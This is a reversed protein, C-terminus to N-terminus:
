QLTTEVVSTLRDLNRGFSHVFSTSWLRFGILSTMTPTDFPGLVVTQQGQGVFAPSLQTLVYPGNTVVGLGTAPFVHTPPNLSLGVVAISPGSGFNPVNFECFHDYPVNWDWFGPMSPNPTATVTRPTELQWLLNMFVGMGGWQYAVLVDLDLDLDVDVLQIATASGDLCSGPVRADVLPDNPDFCSLLPNSGIRTTSLDAFNAGAAPRGFVRTGCTSNFTVWSGSIIISYAERWTAGVLDVLGDEDVDGVAVDTFSVSTSLAPQALTFTGTGNNAFVHVGGDFWNPTPTVLSRTQTGVVLDVDADGDVDAPTLCLPFGAPGPFAIMSPVFKGNGLGLAIGYVGAGFMGGGLALDVNGDGDFDAAALETPTIGLASPTTVLFSRGSGGAGPDNHYFNVGNAFGTVFDLDGDNDFDAVEVLGGSGPAAFAYSWGGAAPNHADLYRVTTNCAGGSPISRWIGVLPSGFITQQGVAVIEPLGDGDFDALESDGWLGVFPNVACGNDATLVGYAPAAGLVMGNEVLSLGCLADPDNDGDVDGVCLSQAGAGALPNTLVTNTVFGPNENLWQFQTQTQATATGAALSAAAIALIPRTEKM